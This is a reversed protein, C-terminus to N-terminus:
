GLLIVSSYNENGWGSAASGIGGGCAPSPYPPASRPGSIQLSLDLTFAQQITRILRSLKEAGAALVPRRAHAPPPLCRARARIAPLRRANQPQRRHRLAM